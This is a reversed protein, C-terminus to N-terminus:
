EQYTLVKNLNFDMPRTIAADGLQVITRRDIHGNRTMRLSVPGPSNLKVQDTVSYYIQEVAM